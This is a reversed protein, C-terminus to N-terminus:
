AERQIVSSRPSRRNVPVGAPTPGSAAPSVTTALSESTAETRTEIAHPPPGRRPEEGGEGRQGEAPQVSERQELGVRGLVEEAGFREGRKVAVPLEVAWAVRRVGKARGPQREQENGQGPDSGIRDDARLQHHDRQGQDRDPEGHPESRSVSRGRPRDDGAQDDGAARIGQEMRGLHHRLKGVERARQAHNEQHRVGGIRRRAAVDHDSAQEQRKEREEPRDAESEHDRRQDPAEGLLRAPREPGRRNGGKRCTRQPHPPVRRDASRRVEARDFRAHLAVAGRPKHGARHVGQPEISSAEQFDEEGAHPRPPREVFPHRDASRGVEGPEVSGAEHEADRDHGKRRVSRPRAALAVANQDRQVDRAEGGHERDIRRAVLTQGPRQHREDEHHRDGPEGPEPRWYTKCREGHCHGEDRPLARGADGDRAVVESPRRSAVPEVGLADRGEVKRIPAARPSPEPLVRLSPGANECAVGVDGERRPQFLVAHPELLQGRGRPTRADRLQARAVEDHRRSQEALEKREVQECRVGDVAVRDPEPSPVDGDDLHRGVSAAPRAESCRRACVVRGSAVACKRQLRPTDIKRGAAGLDERGGPAPILRDRPKVREDRLPARINAHLEGEPLQEQVGAVVGPGSGCEAGRGPEGLRLEELM